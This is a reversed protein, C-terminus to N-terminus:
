SFDWGCGLNMNGTKLGAVNSTRCLKMGSNSDQATLSSGSESSPIVPAPELAQSASLELLGYAAVADVALGNARQIRHHQPKLAGKRPWAARQARHHRQCLETDHHPPPQGYGASVIDVAQTTGALAQFMIEALLLKEERKSTHKSTPAGLVTHCLKCMIATMHAALCTAMGLVQMPAFGKKLLVEIAM